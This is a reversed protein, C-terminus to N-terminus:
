QEEDSHETHDQTKPILNNDEKEQSNEEEMEVHTEDEQDQQQLEEHGSSHLKKYHKYSSSFAASLAFMVLAVLSLAATARFTFIAGKRDYLFGGIFAGCGNGM